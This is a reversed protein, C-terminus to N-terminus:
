SVSSLIMVDVRMGGRNEAEEIGAQADGLVVQGVENVREERVAGNARLDDLRRDVLVRVGDLRQEVETLLPAQM